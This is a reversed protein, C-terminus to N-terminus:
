DKEYLADEHEDLIGSSMEEIRILQTSSLVLSQAVTLMRGIRLM